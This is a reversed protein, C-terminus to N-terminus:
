VFGPSASYTATGQTPAPGSPISIPNITGSTVNFTVFTPDITAGSNHTLVVTATVPGCLTSSTSLGFSIGTPAAASARSTPSLSLSVFGVALIVALLISRKLVM